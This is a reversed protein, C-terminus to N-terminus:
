TVVKCSKARFEQHQIRCQPIESSLNVASLLFSLFSLSAFAHQWGRYDQAGKASLNM